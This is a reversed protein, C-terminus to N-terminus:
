AEAKVEDLLTQVYPLALGYEKAGAQVVEADTGMVKAVTVLFEKITPKMEEWDEPSWGDPVDPLTDPQTAAAVANAAEMAEAKDAYVEAVYWVSPYRPSGDQGTETMGAEGMKVYYPDPKQTVRAWGKWPLRLKLEKLSPLVVDNHGDTYSAAWKFLDTEWTAPGNRTFANDKDLRIMIGKQPRASLGHQAILAACKARATTRSQEDGTKSPFYSDGQSVGPPFAKYGTTIETLAIIGGGGSEERVEKEYELWFDETM